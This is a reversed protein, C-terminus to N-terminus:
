PASRPRRPRARAPQESQDLQLGVVFTLLLTAALMVAVAVLLAWLDHTVALVCVAAVVSLLAVLASVLIDPPERRSSPDTSRAPSPLRHSQGGPEVSQRPILRHSHRTAM